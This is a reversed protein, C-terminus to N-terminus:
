LFAVHGTMLRFKWIKWIKWRAYARVAMMAIMNPMLFFSFLEPGGAVLYRPLRM